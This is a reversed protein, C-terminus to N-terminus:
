VCHVCCVDLYKVKYGDYKSQEMQSMLSQSSVLDDRVPCHLLSCCATYYGSLRKKDVTYFSNIPCQFITLCFVVTVVNSINTEPLQPLFWNITSYQVLFMQGDM